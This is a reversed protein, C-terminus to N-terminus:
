EQSPHSSVPETETRAMVYVLVLSFIALGVFVTFGRSYGVEGLRDVFLGMVPPIAFGGFAGLGGVWGSAGGVAEPVEKPVLKFVAANNIGMGTAILMAGGFCLLYQHLVTMIVSGLLLVLLAVMATFRGGMRDSVSGGPVRILSAYVSFIGTLLGARGLTLDFSSMWYTPLWATLALFGGFTTFYLFVLPWMQVTAAATYLSQRPSNTPFIEQGFRDRAVQRARDRTLGNKVLQFFWANRGLRYYLLTGILLFLLWALYSNLLGYNGLAIPILFSFIGPAINGLGAYVGLARGQEDQPYWYSVQSIGVSFTAIGCGSLIGLLVLVPYYTASLGTPYLFHIVAALGVMGLLSLVMLLLFPKRGGTTEVWASFPIRLISGSLMPTSVLIGVLFPSLDMMETFRSATPGYLSVAAFGFFFGITAGVLGRQPSGTLDFDAPNITTM